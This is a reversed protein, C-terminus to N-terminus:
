VATGWALATGENVAAGGGARRLHEGAGQQVLGQIRPAQLTLLGRTLHPGRQVLSAGLAAAPQGALSVRPGPRPPLVAQRTLLQSAQRHCRSCESCQISVVHAISASQCGGVGQQRWLAHSAPASLSGGAGSCPRAARLLLRRRRGHDGQAQEGGGAGSIPGGAGRGVRLRAARHQRGQLAGVQPQRRRGRDTGQQVPQGPLQCRRLRLQPQLAQPQGALPLLQRPLAAQLLHAHPRWPLAHPPPPTRHTRPAALALAIRPV